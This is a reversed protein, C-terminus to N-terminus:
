RAAGTSSATQATSSSASGPAASGSAAATSGSAPAASGSAPAATAPAAPASASAAPPTEFFVVVEFQPFNSSGARCDGGGNSSAASTTDAKASSALAVRIVGDILRLRTVVRAVEDQSTTCGVLDIAPGPLSSRLGNQTGGDVATTSTVTGTMSTLWVNSPLVRGLEHMAHSWDFRSGAISTVTQVRRERLSAFSSYDSLGAGQAEATAADREVRTLQARKDTVSKGALAWAATLVVLLALTGLVAYVAGGSKSAGGPGRRDEAPILNVARM